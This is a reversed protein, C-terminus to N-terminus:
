PAVVSYNWGCLLNCLSRTPSVNERRHTPKSRTHKSCGMHMLQPFPIHSIKWDAAPLFIASSNEDLLINQETKTCTLSSALMTLM